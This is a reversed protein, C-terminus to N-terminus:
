ALGAALHLSMDEMPREGLEGEHGREPLRAESGGVEGESGEKGLSWGRGGGQSTKNGSLARVGYGQETGRGPALNACPLPVIGLPNLASKRTSLSAM